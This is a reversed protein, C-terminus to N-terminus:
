AFQVSTIVQAWNSIGVFKKPLKERESSLSYSGHIVALFEIVVEKVFSNQVVRIIDYM